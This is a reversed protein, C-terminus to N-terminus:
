GCYHRQGQRLVKGCGACEYEGPQLIPAEAEVFRGNALTYRKPVLRGSRNFAKGNKSARRKTERKAALEELHETMRAKITDDNM